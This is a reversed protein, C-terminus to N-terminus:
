EGKKKEFDLPHPHVLLVWGWFSHFLKFLFKRRFYKWFKKLFSKKRGQKNKSRWVVIMFIKPGEVFIWIITEYSFTAFWTNINRHKLNIWSIFKYLCKGFRFFNVGSAFKEPPPIINDPPQAQGKKTCRWESEMSM